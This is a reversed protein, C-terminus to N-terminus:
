RKVFLLAVRRLAWWTALFAAAELTFSHFKYFQEAIGFAVTLSVLTVLTVINPTVDLLAYLRQM